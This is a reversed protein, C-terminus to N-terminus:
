HIKNTIWKGILGSGERFSATMDTLNIYDIENQTFVAISSNKVLLKRNKNM